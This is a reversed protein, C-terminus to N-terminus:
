EKIKSIKWEEDLLFRKSIRELYQKYFKIAIMTLDIYSSIVLPILIFHVISPLNMWCSKIQQLSLIMEHWTPLSGKYGAKTQNKKKMKEDAKRSNSMSVWVYARLLYVLFRYLLIHIIFHCCCTNGIWKKIVFIPIFSPIVYIHM